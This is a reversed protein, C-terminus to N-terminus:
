SVGWVLLFALRHAAPDGRRVIDGGGIAAAPLLLLLRSFLRLFLEFGVFLAVVVPPPAPPSRLLLLLLHYPYQPSQPFLFLVAVPVLAVVVVEAAARVKPHNNM